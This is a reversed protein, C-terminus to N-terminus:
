EASSEEDDSMRMKFMPREPLEVGKEEAIEEITKGSEIAAKLEEKTMGLKELLMGPGHGRGHGKGGFHMKMGMKLDPNAAIAAEVAARHAEDAAQVAAKRQTDDTISLAATLADKHTQMASKQMAIMADINALFAADRDIREQIGEQSFDQGHRMMFKMPGSSSEQSPAEDAVQASSIQALVPVALALSSIGAVVGLTFSRKM